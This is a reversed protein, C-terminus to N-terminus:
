LLPLHRRAFETLLEMNMASTVADSHRTSIGLEASVM